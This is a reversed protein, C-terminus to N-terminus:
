GGKNIDVTEKQIFRLKVRQTMSITSSAKFMNYKLYQELLEISNPYHVHWYLAYM